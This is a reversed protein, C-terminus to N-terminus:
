FIWWNSNDSKGSDSAYQSSLIGSAAGQWTGADPTITVTNVSSDKKLVEVKKGKNGVPTFVNIIIAGNTADAIISTDQRVIVAFPSDTDDINIVESTDTLGGTEDTDYWLRGTFSDAPESAQFPCYELDIINSGNGVFIDGDDLDLGSIDILNPSYYPPINSM